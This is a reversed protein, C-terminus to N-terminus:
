WVRFRRPPPPVAAPRKALVINPVSVRYTIDTNRFLQALAEDLPRADIRLTVTRETDIDDTYLFLFGTQKEIENMVTKMPVNTMDLKM